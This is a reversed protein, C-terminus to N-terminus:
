THGAKALIQKLQEAYEPLPRNESFKLPIDAKAYLKKILREGVSEYGGGFINEMSEFLKPLHYPIEERTIGLSSQYHQWLMGSLRVGLVEAFVEDVSDIVLNNFDIQRNSAKGNTEKHDKM